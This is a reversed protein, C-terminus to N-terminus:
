CPSKQGYNTKEFSEQPVCMVVIRKGMLFYCVCKLAVQNAGSTAPWADLSPEHSDPVLICVQERHVPLSLCKESWAPFWVRAHNVPLSESGYRPSQVAGKSSGARAENIFQRQPHPSKLCNSEPFHRTIRLLWLSSSICSKFTKGCRSAM